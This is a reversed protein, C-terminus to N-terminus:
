FDRYRLPRGNQATGSFNLASVSIANGRPPREGPEVAIGRLPEYGPLAVPPATPAFGTEVTEAVPGLWGCNWSCCSGTDVPRATREPEGTNEGGTAHCPAAKSGVPMAAEVAPGGPAAMVALHPQVVFLMLACALVRGLM